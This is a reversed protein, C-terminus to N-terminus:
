LEKLLWLSSSSLDYNLNTDFFGGTMQGFCWAYNKLELQPDPGCLLGLKLAPKNTSHPILSGRVSDAPESGM